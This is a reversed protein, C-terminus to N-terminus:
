VACAEQLHLGLELGLLHHHHHHHDHRRTRLVLFSKLRTGTLTM